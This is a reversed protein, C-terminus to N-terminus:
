PTVQHAPDDVRIDWATTASRRAQIVGTRAPQKEVPAFENTVRSSSSAAQWLTGRGLLRLQDDRRPISSSWYPAVLMPSEPKLIRGWVDPNDANDSGHHAVKIVDAPELVDHEDNELIAGWGLHPPENVVDGCLLAAVGCARVHLAISTRNDDKLFTKIAATDPGSAILTAMEDVALTVAEHSPALAVVRMQDGDDAISLGQAAHKLGRVAGTPGFRRERARTMAGAVDSLSAPGHPTFIGAFKESRAASTVVLKANSYADHLAGLGDYHDGHFHTLVITEVAEPPVGLSDLYVQAAPVPKTQRREGAASVVTRTQPDWFSDVIM